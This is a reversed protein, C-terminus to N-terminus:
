GADSGGIQEMVYFLFLVYPTLLLFFVIQWVRKRWRHRTVTEPPVDPGPEGTRLARNWLMLYAATGAAGIVLDAISDFVHEGTMVAGAQTM